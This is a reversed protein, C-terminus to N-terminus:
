EMIPTTRRAKTLFIKIELARRKMWQINTLKIRQINTLKLSINSDIEQYNEVMKLEMKQGEKLIISDRMQMKNHMDQMLILSITTIHAKLSHKFNHGKIVAILSLIKIM